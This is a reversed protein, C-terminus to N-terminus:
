TMSERIAMLYIFQTCPQREGERQSHETTTGNLGSLGQGRSLGGLREAQGNRHREQHTCIHHDFLIENTPGSGSM